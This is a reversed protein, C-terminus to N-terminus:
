TVKTNEIKVANCIIRKKRTATILANDCSKTFCYFSNIEIQKFYINHMIQVLFSYFCENTTHMVRAGLKESTDFHQLHM